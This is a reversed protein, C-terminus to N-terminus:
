SLIDVLITARLLDTGPTRKLRCNNPPKQKNTKGGDQTTRGERQGNMIKSEYALSPTAHSRFFGLWGLFVWVLLCFFGM